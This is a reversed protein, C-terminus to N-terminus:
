KKSAKKLITKAKDWADHKRDSIAIISKLIENLQEIKKEQEIRHKFLLQYSQNLVEIEKAQERLMDAANKAIPKTNELGCEQCWNDKELALELIEALENANM